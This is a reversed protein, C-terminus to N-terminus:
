WDTSAGPTQPSGPWPSRARGRQSTIRSPPPPCGSSRSTEEGLAGLDALLAAADEFPNQFAHDIRPAGPTDPAICRTVLDHFVPVALALVLRTAAEHAAVPETM